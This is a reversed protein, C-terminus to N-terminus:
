FQRTAAENMMQSVLIDESRFVQLKELTNASRFAKSFNHHVFGSRPLKLFAIKWGNKIGGM